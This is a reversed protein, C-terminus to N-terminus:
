GKMVHDEDHTLDEKGDGGMIDEDEEQRATLHYMRWSRELQKDFDDPQDGNREVFGIFEESVIELVGKEKLIREIAPWNLGEDLKKTLWLAKQYHIRGAIGRSNRKWKVRRNIALTFLKELRTKDDLYGKMTRLLKTKTIKAVTYEWAEPNVKSQCTRKQNESFRKLNEENGFWLCTKTRQCARLEADAWHLKMKQSIYTRNHADKFYLKMKECQRTRNDANTWYLKVRKSIEERLKPDNALTQKYAVVLRAQKDPNAWLLKM